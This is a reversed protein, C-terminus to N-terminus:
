KNTVTCGPWDDTRFPAAPLGAKNYLNCGPNDAWAYRVAVPKIANTNSVIVADNQIRAEASLFKRDDGAVFFGRVAEAVGNTGTVLGGAAHKFRVLVDNGKFTASDLVPGSSEVNKGYVSALAVLALRKGVDWKNPPHINEADGIDITVAIGCNKVSQATMWQAERLEAWESDRYETHVHGYNPLQVILFQLDPEGWLRRWERIFIPLLKRYQYGRPANHEGQYWLVGRMGFPIVPMIGGDFCNGPAHRLIYAYMEKADSPKGPEPQHKARAEAARAEWNTMAANYEALLLPYDARKARAFMEAFDPDGVLAERPTWTELSSSGYATWILGVPINLEKQVKEAFWFGVACFEKANQPDAARWGGICNRKPINTPTVQMFFQRMMPYNMGATENSSTIGGVGYGMNSQGGCLWVEGFLVNTLTITNRGAIALDFPGGPKHAPLRLTWEGNTGTVTSYTQGELTVTVKEGPEAWGWLPVKMGHQLVMNNGIVTPVRVDAYARPVPSLAIFVIVLMCTTALFKSTM